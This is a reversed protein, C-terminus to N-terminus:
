RGVRRSLGGAGHGGAGLCAVIIDCLKRPSFPKHMVATLSFREILAHTDLELGKATCLITPPRRVHDLQDFRRLLDLGDCGPMQFDTVLFSVEGTELIELGAPGDAATAVRFGRRTITFSLVRRFVADDEVILVCPAPSM